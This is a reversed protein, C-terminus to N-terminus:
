LFGHVRNPFDYLEVLSIAFFCCDRHGSGGVGVGMVTDWESSAVVRLEKEHIM